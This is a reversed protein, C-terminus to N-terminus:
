AVLDDLVVPIAALAAAIRHATKASVPRGNVATSLTVQSLGAAVALTAGNVARRDMEHRLKAPDLLIGDSHRTAPHRNPM